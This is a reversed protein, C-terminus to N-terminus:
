EREANPAEPTGLNGGARRLLVARTPQRRERGLRRRLSWRRDAQDPLIVAERVRALTQAREDALQRATVMRVTWGIAGYTTAQRAEREALGRALFFGVGHASGHVEIAV